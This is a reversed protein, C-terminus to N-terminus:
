LVPAKEGGTHMAGEPVTFTGPETKTLKVNQLLPTHDGAISHGLSKLSLLSRSLVERWSQAFALM